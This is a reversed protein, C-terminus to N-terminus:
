LTLWLDWMFGSVRRSFLPKLDGPCAVDPLLARPTNKTVQQSCWRAQAISTAVDFIRVPRQLRPCCMQLYQIVEPPSVVGLPDVSMKTGNGRLWLCDESSDVRRFHLFKAWTHAVKLRPIKAEFLKIRERLAPLSDSSFHSFKCLARAVDQLTFVMRSRTKDKEHYSITYPPRIVSVECRVEPITRSLLFGKKIPRVDFGSRYDVPYTDVVTLISSLDSLYSEVSWINQRLDDLIM